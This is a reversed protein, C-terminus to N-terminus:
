AKLQASIDAQCRRLEIATMRKLAELLQEDMADSTSRECEDGLECRKRRFLEFVEEPSAWTAAGASAATPAVTPRSAASLRKAAVIEDNMLGMQKELTAIHAEAHLLAQLNLQAGDEALNCQTAIGLKLIRKTQCGQDTGSNDTQCGTDVVFDAVNSERDTGPAV